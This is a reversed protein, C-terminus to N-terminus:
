IDEVDEEEDVDYDLFDSKDFEVIMAGEEEDDMGTKFFFDILEDPNNM